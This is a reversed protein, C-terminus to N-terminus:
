DWALKRERSSGSRRDMSSRRMAEGARRAAPRTGSRDASSWVCPSPSRIRAGRAPQRWRSIDGRGLRLSKNLVRVKQDTRVSHRVCDAPPVVQDRFLDDSGAPEIWRCANGDGIRIELERQEVMGKAPACVASFPRNTSVLGDSTRKSNSPFSGSDDDTRSVVRTGRSAPFANGAPRSPRVRGPEARWPVRTEDEPNRLLGAFAYGFTRWQQHGAVM